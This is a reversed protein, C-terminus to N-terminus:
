RKFSMGRVMQEIPRCGVESRCYGRISLIMDPGDPYAQGFNFSTLHYHRLAPDDAYDGEPAIVTIGKRGDIEIESRSCGTGPRCTPAGEFWGWSVILRADPSRYERIETDIGQVDQRVFGPPPTFAVASDLPVLGIDPKRECGALLALALVLLRIM